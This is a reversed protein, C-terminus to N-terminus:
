NRFGRGLDKFSNGRGTQKLTEAINIVHDCLGKYKLILREPAAIAVADPIREAHSKLLSHISLNQFFNKEVDILNINNM